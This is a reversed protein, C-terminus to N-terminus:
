GRRQTREAKVIPPLSWHPRSNGDIERSAALELNPQILLAAVKENLFQLPEALFIIMEVKAGLFHALNLDCGNGVSRVVLYEFPSFNKESGVCPVSLVKGM